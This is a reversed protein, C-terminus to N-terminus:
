CRRCVKNVWELTKTANFIWAGTTTVINDISNILGDPNHHIQTGIVYQPSVSILEIYSACATLDYNTRRHDFQLHKSLLTTSDLNMQKNNEKYTWNQAPWGHIPM